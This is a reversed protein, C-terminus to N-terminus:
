LYFTEQLMRKAKVKLFAPSICSPGPQPAQLDSRGFHAEYQESTISLVYLANFFYPFLAFIWLLFVLIPNQHATHQCYVIDKTLNIFEVIARGLISFHRRTLYTKLNNLNPQHHATPDRTDYAAEGVEEFDIDNVHM